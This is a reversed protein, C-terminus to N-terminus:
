LGPPRASAGMAPEKHETLVCIAVFVLRLMFVSIIGVCVGRGVRM